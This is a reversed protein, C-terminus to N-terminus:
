KLKEVEPPKPHLILRKVAFYGALWILGISMIVVWTKIGHHAWMASYWDDSVMDDIKMLYWINFGILSLVALACAIGPLLWIFYDMFTQDYVKRTKAKERTRLNYGCSLCVVQGEEVENACDPCRPALSMDQLIYPNPDDDEDDMRLRAPKNTDSPSKAAGKGAPPKATKAPPTKGGTASAVFAAQCFKCRVKKGLVNEPAKIQKGCKPCELLIPTAM